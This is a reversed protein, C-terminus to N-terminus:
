VERYYWAVRTLTLMDKLEGVECYESRLNQSTVKRVSYKKESSKWKTAGRYQKAKYDNTTLYKYEKGSLTRRFGWTRYWSM